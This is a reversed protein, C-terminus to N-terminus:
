NGNGGLLPFVILGVLWLLPLLVRIFLFFIAVAIIVQTTTSKQASQAGWGQQGSWTPPPAAYPLGTQPVTPQPSM